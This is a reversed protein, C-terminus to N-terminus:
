SACLRRPREASRRWALYERLRLPVVWCLKEVLRQFAECAARREGLRGHCLGRYYYTEVMSFGPERAAETLELAEAIHGLGYAIRARLRLIDKRKTFSADQREGALRVAEGVHEEAEGYAETDALLMALELLAELSDTDEEVRRRAAQVAGERCSRQFAVTAPHGPCIELIPDTAGIAGLFRGRKHQLGGRWLLHAIRLRDLLPPMAEADEYEVHQGELDEEILLVLRALFPPSDPLDDSNLRFAANRDGAAWANLVAYGQVLDNNPSLEGARRFADRAAANNGADFYVRGAFLHFAAREPALALAKEVHAAAQESRGEDALAMGLHLQGIAHEPLAELVDELAAIAEAREGRGARAIADRVRM